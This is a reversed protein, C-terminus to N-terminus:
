SQFQAELLSDLKNSAVHVLRIVSITHAQADQLWLITAFTVQMELHLTTLQLPLRSPNHATM